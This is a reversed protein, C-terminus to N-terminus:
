SRLPLIRIRLRAPEVTLVAGADIDTMSVTLARTIEAGISEPSTDDARIQIVSPRDWNAHALITSFDLDHTLVCFGNDRAYQMVTADSATAAGVTSWHVAEFGADALHSVWRTSLNM